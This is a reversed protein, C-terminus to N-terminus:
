SRTWVYPDPTNIRFVQNSSGSTVYLESTGPSFFASATGNTAGPQVSLDIRATLNGSATDIFLVAGTTSSLMNSFDANYVTKGSCVVILEDDVDAFVDRPGDCGVPLTAASTAGPHVVSLTNGDGLNGNNAVYITSGVVTVGEPVMGVEITAGVVGSALEIPVLTGNMGFVLNSVYAIGDLVAMARPAPLDSLQGVQDLTERDLVAIRGESFTNLLAYIKGDVLSVGQLFGNLSPTENTTETAPDYWTIFGDQDGFNGGNAVLIRTRALSDSDGGRDVLNCAGLTMILFLPVIRQLTNMHM